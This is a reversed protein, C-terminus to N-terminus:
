SSGADPIILLARAVAFQLKEPIVGIESFIELHQECNLFTFYLSWDQVLDFIAVVFHFFFEFSRLFQGSLGAYTTGRLDIYKLFLFKRNM